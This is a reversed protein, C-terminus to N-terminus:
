RYYIESKIQEINQDGLALLSSLHYFNDPAADVFKIKKLIDEDFSAGKEADKAYIKKLLQAMQGDFGKELKKRGYKLAVDVDKEVIKTLLQMEFYSNQEMQARLKPNTVAQATESLFDLTM